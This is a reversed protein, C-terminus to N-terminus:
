MGDAAKAPSPPATTDRIVLATPLVLPAPHAGSQGDLAELLMRAAEEGQKLVPQRVTTLDLLDAMDHDDFGVVSVHEPVRLCARHLAKMAGFAMEDSQAFVATLQRRRGLLESMAHAGGAITFGGDVELRPDYAIGARNLVDLYAARRQLPTPRYMPMDLGGTIMAIDRHGLNVLHQVAVNAGAMDDIGICAFGEIVAGVVALPVGLSRLTEAEPETLPLSLVLVADVRRRLPMTAFFRERGADDGLNYLLLDFGARRLYREVGTIVQSFFWRNVYPVVLGITCTRGSALRSAAPSIAYDLEAAAALIRQRTSDSVGPLGRLARSVSATSVRARAAVDELSEAAVPDREAM